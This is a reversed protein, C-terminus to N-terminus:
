QYQRLTTFSEKLVDLHTDEEKSKVLMDDIYVEMNGRIQRSFMKNVLRQYIAGLNKLGFSM